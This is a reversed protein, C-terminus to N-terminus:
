RDLFKQEISKMKPIDPEDWCWSDGVGQSKINRVRRARLFPNHGCEIRGYHDLQARYPNLKPNKAFRIRDLVSYQMLDIYLQEVMRKVSKASCRSSYVAVIKSRDLTQDMGDWTVIWANSM